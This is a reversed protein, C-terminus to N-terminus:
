SDTISCVVEESNRSGDMRRGVGVWWGCRVDWKRLQSEYENYPVGDPHELGGTVPCLSGPVQVPKVKQVELRWYGTKLRWIILQGQDQRIGVRTSEERAEARIRTRTRWHKM